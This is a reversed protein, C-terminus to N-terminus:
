SIAWSNPKVPVFASHSSDSFPAGISSRTSLPAISHFFVPSVSHFENILRDSNAPCSPLSTSNEVVGVWIM